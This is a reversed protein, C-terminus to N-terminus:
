GKIHVIDDVIISSSPTAIVIKENSQIEMSGCRGSIKQAKLHIDRRSKIRVGSKEDFKLRLANGRTSVSISEPSFALENGQETGFYKVNSKKTKPNKEGRTRLATGAYADEEKETPFYLLVMEGEEPMSYWGTSGEAAYPTLFPYWAAESLSQSKDISLHLKLKDREVALVTGKLATGKLGAHYSIHDKMGNENKMGYRCNLIGSVLEITKEEIVFSAGEYSIRDGIGYNAITEFEWSIADQEMWGKYNSDLFLYNGENKTIVHNKGTEAASEGSPVGVFIKPIDFRVDPFILAGVRSAARKFFEWDTEEYQVLACGQLKGHSAHDLVDGGYERLLTNFLSSFSKDKNQFSKSKKKVDMLFSVSKMKIEAEYVGRNQKVTIDVPIGCFLTEEGMDNKVKIRVVTKSTLRHIGQHSEEKLVGSLCARGHDNPYQEIKLTKICSFEVPIDLIIDEYSYKRNNM